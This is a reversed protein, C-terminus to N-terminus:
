TKGAMKDHVGGVGALAEGIRKSLRALTAGYACCSVTASTMDASGM